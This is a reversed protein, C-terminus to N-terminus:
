LPVTAPVGAPAPAPKGPESMERWVILIGAVVVLVLGITQWFNLKM